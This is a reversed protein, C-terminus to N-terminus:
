AFTVVPCGRVMLNATLIGVRVLGIEGDLMEVLPDLPDDPLLKEAGIRTV